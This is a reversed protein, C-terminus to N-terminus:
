RLAILLFHAENGCNHMLRLDQHKVLRETTQVRDVHLQKLIGYFFQTILSRANQEGGM